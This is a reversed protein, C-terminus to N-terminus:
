AGELMKQQKHAENLDNNRSEAGHATPEAAM